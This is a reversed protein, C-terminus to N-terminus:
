IKFGGLGERGKKGNPRPASPVSGRSTSPCEPIVSGTIGNRKAALALAVFWPPPTTVSRLPRASRTALGNMLTPPDWDLQGGVATHAAVFDGFVPAAAAPPVELDEAGEDMTRPLDASSEVDQDDSRYSEPMPGPSASDSVEDGFDSEDDQIAVPPLVGLTELVSSAQTSIETNRLQVEDTEEAATNESTVDRLVMASKHAESIRLQPRKTKARTKPQIFHKKWKAEMWKRENKSIKYVLHQEGNKYTASGSPRNHADRWHAALNYTWVLPENRDCLSCEVPVNSCPSDEDKSVSAYAMSFKVPNGCTSRTWDVQKAASTGRSAKFHVRCLPSSRLCTGCPQQLESSFAPDFLIHGGMHELVRQGNKTDLIVSPVCKQCIGSTGVDAGHNRYPFSDTRKVKSVSLRDSDSLQEHLTAAATILTASDFLYTPKGVRLVSVEPNMPHVLNGPVNACNGEHYLSWCWDYKQTPDDAVTAPVIRLIQASVTASSDNLMDLPISQVSASSFTLNNVHAVALFLREECSVVLAIPNGIRLSPAGLVSGSVTGLGDMTPTFSPLGAVRKLRDTSSRTGRYYRWMGSLAKAKPILKGHIEIHTAFKGQPEAIALADEVDGDPNYSSSSEPGDDVRTSTSASPPSPQPADSTRLLEPDIDFEEPSDQDLYHVLPSGLPSFFDVGDRRAQSLIERAAPILEEVIQRGEVHATLLTVNAVHTDGKWAAPNVHDANPGIEGAENIITPLQLRRPPRDWAPKSALIITSETLNSVRTSLQYVDVNNDTGVATRVLGFLVELRDTGLLIIFFEADPIDLKTKAVCFFVNKIMIMLNVYTQNAMFSTGAKKHSYLVFLIHAAASLHVLQKHLSLEIFIYPMLLHYGLQGFLRLAERTRRFAPDADPSPAPLSWLSRILQYGLLVDQKDNPNLFAHVAPSVLWPLTHSPRGAIVGFCVFASRRLFSPCGLWSLDLPPDLHSMFLRALCSGSPSTFRSQPWYRRTPFSARNLNQMISTFTPSSSPSLPNSPVLFFFACKRPPDKLRMLLNRLTKLLHRYDKDATIDDEGVRLNMLELVSLLEYLPSGEELDRNMCEQVLAAGRKAEGDSAISITRYITKGRARKNNAATMIQRIFKAQEPGKEHKDTGSICCPRPSYVRPDKALVGFAAVTAESALKIDESDLAEFFVKLDDATNLELSVKHSSERSVGIIMNTKDDWRPRPEVAFEDMMLVQHVIVVPGSSDSEPEGVACAEINEEIERVTPMGPSGRLPRIVTNKRLTSLGPLGTARHLIGAVRAGGLRLMLLGLMMDDETFGKPNYVERCARHYREVIGAIGVGNSLCAQVLQAVRQVKGSAVAMVLQKHEDLANMKGALKRVINLKTLKLGRCQETKKRAVDMLAAIPLYILPINELYGHMIRQVVGRFIDNRMIGDCPRCAKGPVVMAQICSHSQVFFQDRKSYYDWTLAYQQHLGFPYDTHHSRGSPFGLILGSCPMSKQSELAHDEGARPLARHLEDGALQPATRVAMSTKSPFRREIGRTLFDFYVEIDEGRLGRETIFIDFFDCFGDLGYEGTNIYQASNGLYLDGVGFVQNLLPQLVRHWDGTPERDPTGKSAFIALPHSWDALPSHEPINGMKGRLRRMLNEAEACPTISVSGTALFNNLLDGGDEQQVQPGTGSPASVTKFMPGQAPLPASVTPPVLPTRQVLYRSMPGGIPKPNNKAVRRTTCNESAQHTELNRRAGYPIKVVFDCDPCITTSDATYGNGGSSKKKGM